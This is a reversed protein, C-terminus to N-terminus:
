PVASGATMTAGARHDSATVRLAPRLSAAGGAITGVVGLVALVVVSTLSM